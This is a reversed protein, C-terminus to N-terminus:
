DARQRYLVGGAVSYLTSNDPSFAGSSEIGSKMPLTRLIKGTRLDRLEWLKREKRPVAMVKEDPSFAVSFLSIDGFQWLVRGTQSDVVKSDGAADYLTYTGFPSPRMYEYSKVAQLPVRQQPRASRTSFFVIERMTPAVLLHGDRTLAPPFTTFVDVTFARELRRSNQQWRFYRENFFLEVSDRAPSVRVWPSLNWDASSRAKLRAKEGANLAPLDYVLPAIAPQTTPRLSLQAHEAGTLKWM